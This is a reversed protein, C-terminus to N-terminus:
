IPISIYFAAGRGPASEFWLDGGFKGKIIAYSIYLGLGTGKKGKTTIMERFLKSQLETLIGKGSDRICFELTIDKQAAIFEILGGKGEYSQIANTILNELVQVLNSVEGPIELDPNAKLNYRIKCDFKNLEYDTLIEVRKLLEKLTFVPAMSHKGPVIQGKITTLVNSMYTCCPTMENLCAEMERAIERHDEPTVRRDGISAQYEAVLEKISAIGVSLSMIPTKLNHTIGSIMQGLSALREREVIMSQQKKIDEVYKKEREQVKNFAIALDGIEDNSIVAIRKNLDAEEGEAIEKLGSAILAIDDALTRAFYLIILAAFISVAMISIFFLSINKPSSVVYKIGFIWDGNVGRLKIVTGQINSGYYDYTHGHYKFALERTYKLFFKSLRSNDSTKYRGAPDIYFTIDNKNDTVVLNFFQKMQAESQIYSCREFIMQLERQYSKFLADGKEKILGSQGIWSIFLISFLFLPFIQLIIKFRLGIRTAKLESNEFYTYKLVQRFYKKSFLYSIEGTLNLGVISIMYLKVDAIDIMGLVIFLVGIIIIPVFIQLIYVIHPITLSRKRVKNIETINNSEFIQVIHDWNDVGRFTFKLCIYGLIMILLNIVIYQQYYLIKSFEKDFQTNISGPPYNLLLPFLPYFVLDTIIIVFIYIGFINLNPQKQKRFRFINLTVVSM